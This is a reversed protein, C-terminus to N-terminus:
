LVFQMSHITHLLAVLLWKLVMLNKELWLWTNGQMYFMIFVLIASEFCCCSISSILICMSLFLPDLIFIHINLFFYEKKKKKQDPFFETNVPFNIFLRFALHSLSILTINPSLLCLTYLFNPFIFLIKNRSM